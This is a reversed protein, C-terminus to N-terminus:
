GRENSPSRLKAFCRGHALYGQMQKMSKHQLFANVVADPDCPDEQRM